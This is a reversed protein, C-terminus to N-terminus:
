SSYVFESMVVQSFARSEARYQCLLFPLFILLIHNIDVNLYARFKEFVSKVNDV